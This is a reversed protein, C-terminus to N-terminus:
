PKGSNPILNMRVVSSYDWIQVHVILRYAYPWLTCGSTRNVWYSNSSFTTGFQVHLNLWATGSRHHNRAQGSLLFWFFFILWLWHLEVMITAALFKHISWLWSSAAPSSPDITVRHRRGLCRRFCLHSGIKNWMYGSHWFCVQDALDGGNAPSFIATGLSSRKPPWRRGEDLPPAPAFTVRHVMKVLCLIKLCPHKSYLHTEYSRACM